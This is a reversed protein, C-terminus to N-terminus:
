FLLCYVANFCVLFVEYALQKDPILTTERLYLNINANNSLDLDTATNQEEFHKQLILKAVLCPSVDFNEAIKIIVGPTKSKKIGALYQEYYRNKQAQSKIHNVKM